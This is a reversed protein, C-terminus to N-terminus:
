LCLIDGDSSLLIVQNVSDPDMTTNQSPVCVVKIVYALFKLDNCRKFNKIRQDFELADNNIGSRQRNFEYLTNILSIPPILQSIQSKGYQIM